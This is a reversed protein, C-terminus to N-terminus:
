GGTPGFRETWRPRRGDKFAQKAANNRVIRYGSRQDKRLVNAHRDLQRLRSLSVRHRAGLRANESSCLTATAVLSRRRLWGDVVRSPRYRGGFWCNPPVQSRNGTM